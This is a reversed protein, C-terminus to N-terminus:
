TNSAGPARLESLPWRARVQVVSDHAQEHQLRKAGALAIMAGNDTCVSMDPFIINVSHTQGWARLAQRLAQSAAVGGAVLLTTHGTHAIAREAKKLLVDIVADQFALAMDAKVQPTLDCKELAYRVATKLGSFSMDCDPRHLLPRPLDFAGPKGQLAAQEVAPGGPYGMGLMVAVKDFAEGVADDLTGGLTEYCGLESVSLWQSHGGSVLLCTFPFTVDINQDLMPALIHGELHHIGLAPVQYAKSLGRAFGAGIWLAGVLGPGATYAVADIPLGARAPLQALLQEYLHPIRRLHDRAAMEPVVGGYPAHDAMQSHLVQALLGKETDFVALGTEDCSTEIGLVRM